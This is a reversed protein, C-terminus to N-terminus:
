KTVKFDYDWRAGKERCDIIVFIPLGGEGVANRWDPCEFSLDNISQFWNKLQNERGSVMDVNLGLAAIINLSVILSM